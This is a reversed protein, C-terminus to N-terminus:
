KWQYIPLSTHLRHRSLFDSSAELRAVPLLQNKLSLVRNRRIFGKSCTTSQQSETPKMKKTKWLWKAPNREQLLKDFLEWVQLRDVSSTRIESDTALQRRTQVPKSTDADVDTNQINLNISPICMQIVLIVHPLSLLKKYQHESLIPLNQKIITTKRLMFM